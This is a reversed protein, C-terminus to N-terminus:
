SYVNRGEPVPVTPVGSRLATRPIQSAGAAWIPVGEANVQGGNRAPTIAHSIEKERQDRQQHNMCTEGSLIRGRQWDTGFRRWEFQRSDISFFM